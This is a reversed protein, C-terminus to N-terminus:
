QYENKVRYQEPVIQPTDKNAKLWEIAASITTPLEHPYRMNKANWIIVRGGGYEVWVNPGRWQGVGNKEFNANLYVYLDEVTSENAQDQISIQNPDIHAKAGVEIFRDEDIQSM